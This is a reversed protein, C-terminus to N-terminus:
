YARSNEKTKERRRQLRALFVFSFLIFPLSLLQGATLYQEGIVLSSPLKFFELFFRSGFCLIFFLACFTGSPLTKSRYKWLLFLIGATTLYALAEYLQVPHRPLAAVGELPHSFLVAWPLDTPYGIIEQNIFNGIRICIAALSVPIVILDLYTLFSFTRYIRSFLFLALIIGIAGGHSALGGNWIEIMKWPETIFTPLDYFLIHGLRAGIVTGLIIFWLMKDALRSSEDKALTQTMSEKFKGELLKSLALYGIFFGLSFLVGYWAVPYNFYPITFAIRSPDWVIFGFFHGIM